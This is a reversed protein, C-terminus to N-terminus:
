WVKCCFNLALSRELISADDPLSILCRGLLHNPKFFPDTISLELTEWDIKEIKPTPFTGSQIM